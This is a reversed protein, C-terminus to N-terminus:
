NNNSNNSITFLKYIVCTQLFFRLIITLTFQSNHFKIWPLLLLLVNLEKVRTEDIVHVFNIDVM